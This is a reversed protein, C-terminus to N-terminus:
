KLEGELERNEFYTILGARELAWLFGWWHTRYSNIAAPVVLLLGEMRKLEADIIAKTNPTM